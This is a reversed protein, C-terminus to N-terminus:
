KRLESRIVLMQAEGAFTFKPSSTPVFLCDGKKVMLEGEEKSETSETVDGFRLVAEGAVVLYAIFDDEATVEISGSLVLKDVVFYPCSILRSLGEPFEAPLEPLPAAVKAPTLDTVALAKEVHLERLNGEKDRRGFDFVRYTSNSSQQVEALVIGAGIAHITGAPIFYAEGPAVPQKHLVETLTGDDIRRRFEDRSIEEEFGYYLFAGPQAELIVWMETKGPEKEVELAYKDDPHVQISLSGKADIFKVLIPFPDGAEASKSWEQPYKKTFELFSTGALAGTVVRAPGDPHASLEWSEAVPLDSAPKGYESLKNGGWLYNKIAPQLLFPKM